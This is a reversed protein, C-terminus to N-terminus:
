PPRVRYRAPDATISRRSGGGRRACGLIPAILRPGHSALRELIAVGRVPSAETAAWAVLLTKPYLAEHSAVIDDRAPAGFLVVLGEGTREGAADSAREQVAM